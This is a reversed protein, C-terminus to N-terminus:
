FLWKRFAGLEFTRIGLLSPGSRVVSVLLVTERRHPGDQQTSDIASYCDKHVAM